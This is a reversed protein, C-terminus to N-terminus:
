TRLPKRTTWPPPPHDQSLVAFMRWPAGTTGPCCDCAPRQPTMAGTDQGSGNWVPIQQGGLGAPVVQHPHRHEDPQRRCATKGQVYKGLFCSAKPNTVQVGWEKDRERTLGVPLTLPSPSVAACSHMGRLRAAVGSQSLVTSVARM